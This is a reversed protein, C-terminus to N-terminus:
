FLRETREEASAKFLAQIEEPTGSLSDNDIVFDNLYSRNIVKRTKLIYEDVVYYYPLGSTSDYFVTPMKKGILQTRPINFRCVFHRVNKNSVCQYAPLDELKSFFHMYNENEDYSFNSTCGINDFNSGVKLTQGLMFNKLEEGTLYSYLIM